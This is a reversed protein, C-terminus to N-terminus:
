ENEAQDLVFETFGPVTFSLHGHKNADLIGKDLLRQRTVSIAHTTSGVAEALSARKVDAGGLRAIAVLMQQQKPTSGRWRSRFLTLMEHEVPALAARVDDGTIRDAPALGDTGLRREAAKWSLDGILQVKYPYGASESAGLDLATREWVIGVDAATAELAERAGAPSLGPLPQFAFRESFTVAKNIKTPAGPLGVGFLATRPQGQDFSHLPDMEQWAYAITRLSSADAEQIEDILLVIGADGDATVADLSAKLARQFQKASAATTADASKMTVGAAALGPVGLTVTASDIAEVASQRMRSGSGVVLRLEALLSGVLDEEPNATILVTKIDYGGFIRQAERLLSTKGVGRPGHDVHVRPVFRGESAIRQAAQRFQQLKDSRGPLKTPVSGPTYPSLVM